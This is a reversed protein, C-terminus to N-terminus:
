EVGSLFPFRLYSAPAAHSVAAEVRLNKLLPQFVILKLQFEDNAVTLHGLDILEQFSQGRNQRM